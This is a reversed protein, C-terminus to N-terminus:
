GIGVTTPVPRTITGPPVHSRLPISYRIHHPIFVGQARSAHLRVAHPVGTRYPCRRRLLGGHGFRVSSTLASHRMTTGIGSISVLPYHILCIRSFLSVRGDVHLAELIPGLQLFVRPILLRFEFSCFRSKRTGFVWTDTHLSKLNLRWKYYGNGLSCSQNYQDLLCGLFTAIAWKRQTIRVCVLPHCQKMRGLFHSHRKTYKFLKRTTLWLLTYHLTHYGWFNFSDFPFSCVVIQQSGFERSVLNTVFGFINM